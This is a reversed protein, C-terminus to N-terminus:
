LVGDGEKILVPNTSLTGLNLHVSVIGNIEKFFYSGRSLSVDESSLM